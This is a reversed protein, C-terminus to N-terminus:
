ASHPFPTVAAMIGLGLALGGLVVIDIRRRRVVLSGAREPTLVARLITALGLGGAAVFMGARPQHLAAILVGLAVIGVVFTLPDTRRRQPPSGSEPEDGPGEGPEEGTPTTM